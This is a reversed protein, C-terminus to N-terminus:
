LHTDAHVSPPPSQVINKHFPEPSRYFIFVNVEFLVGGDGPGGTTDMDEDGHGALSPTQTQAGSQIGSDPGMYHGQQWMLTQEKHEASQPAYGGGGGRSLSGQMAYSM